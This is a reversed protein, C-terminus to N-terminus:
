GALTKGAATLFAGHYGKKRIEELNVLLRADHVIRLNLTDESSVRELSTVIGCIEDIHEIRLGEGLLIKRVAGTGDSGAARSIEFLVVAPIVIHPEGGEMAIIKEAYRVAQVTRSVAKLVAEGGIPRLGRERLRDELAELLREQLSGVKRAMYQAYLTEGVCEEARSCWEICSLGVNKTVLTGCKRCSRSFEDTWIEVEYGCSPCKFIEPEPQRALKAGPCKMDM